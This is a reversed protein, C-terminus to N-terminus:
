PGDPGAPRMFCHFHGHEGSEEGPGHAHYYWQAGTAPDYVDGEPYHAWASLAGADRLTETLVSQGGKALVAECFAIEERARAIADQSMARGAAPSASAAPAAAGARRRLPRGGPYADPGSAAAPGRAGPRRRLSRRCAGSRA